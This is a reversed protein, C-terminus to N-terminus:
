KRIRRRAAGALGFLGTGLLLMSAPEPVNTQQTSGVWTWDCQGIEAAVYIVGFQDKTLFDSPSLDQYTGGSGLKLTWTLPSRTNTPDLSLDLARWPDVDNGDYSVSGSTVSWTYGAPVTGGYNLSLLTVEDWPAILSLSVDLWKGNSADDALTITGYSSHPTCTAYTSSYTNYNNVTCNLDFTLSAAQAGPALGLIALALCITGLTKM